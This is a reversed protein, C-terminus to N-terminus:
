RLSVIVLKVLSAHKYALHGCTPWHRNKGQVRRQPGGLIYGQNGGETSGALLYPTLYGSRIKDGKSPRDKLVWSKKAFTLNSVRVGHM